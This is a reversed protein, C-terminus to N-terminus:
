MTISRGIAMAETKLLNAFGIYLSRVPLLPLSVILCVEFTFFCCYLNRFKFFGYGKPPPKKRHFKGKVIKV